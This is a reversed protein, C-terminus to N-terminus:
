LEERQHWGQPRSGPSRRQTMSSNVASPSRMMRELTGPSANISGSSGANAGASVKPSPAPSGPGAKSSRPSGLRPSSPMSTDVSLGRQAGLGLGRSTPSNAHPSDSQGTGTSATAALEVSARPTEGDVIVGLAGYTDAETGMEGETDCEASALTGLMERLTELEGRQTLMSSLRERLQASEALLVTKTRECGELELRLQSIRSLADAHALEEDRLKTVLYVAPQSTRALSEKAIEIQRLLIKNEKVKAAVDVLAADRQKEMDLLRQALLVAQKARREPHSPVSKMSLLFEASPNTIDGAVLGAQAVRLM